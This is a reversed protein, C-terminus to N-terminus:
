CRKSLKVSCRQPVTHRACRPSSSGDVSLLDPPWCPRHPGACGSPVDVQVPTLTSHSRAVSNITCGLPSCHASAFLPDTICSVGELGSDQSFCGLAGPCWRHRPESPHPLTSWQGCCHQLRRLLAPCSEAGQCCPAGRPAPPLNRLHRCTGYGRSAIAPLLLHHSTVHSLQVTGRTLPRLTRSLLEKSSQRQASGYSVACKFGRRQSVRRHVLLQEALPPQPGRCPVPAHCRPVLAGPHLACCSPARGRGGAFPCCAPSICLSPKGARLPQLKSLWTGRREM